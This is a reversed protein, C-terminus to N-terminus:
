MHQQEARYLSGVGRATCGQRLNVVGQQDADSLIVPIGKFLQVAFGPPCNVGKGEGEEFIGVVGLIDDLLGKEFDSPRGM